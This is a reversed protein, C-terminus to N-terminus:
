VAEVLKEPFWELPNRGKAQESAMARSPTIVEDPPLPVASVPCPVPVPVPPPPLHTITHISPSPRAARIM